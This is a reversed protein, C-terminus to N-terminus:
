VQGDKLEKDAAGSINKKTVLPRTLNSIDGQVLHQTDPLPIEAEVLVVRDARIFSDRGRCKELANQSGSFIARSEEKENGVEFWNDGSWCVYGAHDIAVPIIVKVTKSM